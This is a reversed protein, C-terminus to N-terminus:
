LYWLSNSRSAFYVRNDAYIFGYEYLASKAQLDLQACLGAGADNDCHLPSTYNNCSYTNAGSLGLRDGHASIDQLDKYVDLLIVRGAESLIMSDEADDFLAEIDKLTVAEMGTYFTYTDGPAGGMPARAGKPIMKGQSYSNFKSGRTLKKVSQLKSHHMVLQQFIEDSFANYIWFDLIKGTGEEVILFIQMGCNRLIENNWEYKKLKLQEPHLIPKINKSGTKSHPIPIPKIHDHPEALSVGCGLYKDELKQPTVMIKQMCHYESPLNSCKTCTTNLTKKNQLIHKPPKDILKRFSVSRQLILRLSADTNAFFAPIMQNLYPWINDYIQKINEKEKFFSVNYRLAELGYILWQELALEFNQLSLLFFISSPYARRPIIDPNKKIARILEKSKTIKKGQTQFLFVKFFDEETWVKTVDEPIWNFLVLALSEHIRHKRILIQMFDSKWVVLCKPDSWLNVISHLNSTKVATKWAQDHYISPKVQRMERLVDVVSQYYQQRDDDTTEERHNYSMQLSNAWSSCKKFWFGPTAQLLKNWKSKNRALIPLGDFEQFSIPPLFFPLPSPDQIESFRQRKHEPSHSESSLPSSIENLPTSIFDEEEDEDEENDSLAESADTLDEFLNHQHQQTGNTGFLLKDIQKQISTLERLASNRQHYHDLLQVNLFAQIITDEPLISPEMATSAALWKTISVIDPESLSSSLEREWAQTTSRTMKEQRLKQFSADVRSHLDPSFLPLPQVIPTCATSAFM